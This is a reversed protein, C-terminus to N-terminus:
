KIEALNEVEIKRGKCHERSRQSLCKITSFSFRNFIRINHSLGNGTFGRTRRGAIDNFFYITRM